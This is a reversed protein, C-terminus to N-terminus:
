YYDANYEGWASEGTMEIAADKGTEQKCCNGLMNVVEMRRGLRFEGLGIYM